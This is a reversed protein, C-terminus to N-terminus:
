RAHPAPRVSATCTHATDQLSATRTGFSATAPNTPTIVTSLTDTELTMARGPIGSAAVAIVRSSPGADLKARTASTTTVALVAVGRAQALDDLLSLVLPLPGYREAGDVVLVRVDGDCAEELARTDTASTFRLGLDALRCVAGNVRNWQNNSLRCQRLLRDPVTAEGALMLRGFAVLDGTAVLVTPACARAVSASISEALAQDNAAIIVVEGAAVGGTLVHDLEVIGTGIKAPQEDATTALSEYTQEMRTLLHDLVWHVSVPGHHDEADGRGSLRWDM